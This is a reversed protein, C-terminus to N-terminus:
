NKWLSYYVFNNKLILHNRLNNGFPHFFKKVLFRCEFATYLKDYM